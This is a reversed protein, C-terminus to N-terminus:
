YLMICSVEHENAVNWTVHLHVPGILGHDRLTGFRLSSHLATESGPVLIVFDCASNNLSTIYDM